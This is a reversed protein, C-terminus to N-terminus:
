SMFASISNSLSLYHVCPFIVWLQYDVNQVTPKTFMLSIWFSKCSAAAKHFNYQFIRHRNYIIGNGISFLTHSRRIYLIVVLGSDTKQLWGHLRYTTQMSFSSILNKSNTYSNNHLIIISFGLKQNILTTWTNREAGWM